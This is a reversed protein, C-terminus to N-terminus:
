HITEPQHNEDLSQAHRSTPNPTQTASMSKEQLKRFKRTFFRRFFRVNRGNGFILLRKFNDRNMRNLKFVNKRCPFFAQFNLVDWAPISVATFIVIM